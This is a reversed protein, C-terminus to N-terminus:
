LLDLLDEPPRGIVARNGVIGIPRQLLRPNEAMAQLLTESDEEGTLSAKKADRGRLVERPEKDLKQMLEQLETLSLVEKTYERYTHEIGHENLM